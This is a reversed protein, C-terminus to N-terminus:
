PLSGSLDIVPIRAYNLVLLSLLSMRCNHKINFREMEWGERVGERM